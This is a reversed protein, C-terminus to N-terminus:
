ITYQISYESLSKTNNMTGYDITISVTNQADNAIVSSKFNNADLKTKYEGSSFTILDKIHSKAWNAFDTASMKALDDKSILNKSSLYNALMTNSIFSMNDETKDLNGKVFGTYNVILDLDSSAGNMLSKPINVLFSVYGLNNDYYMSTKILDKNTASTWDSPVNTGLTDVLLNRVLDNLSSYAKGNITLDSKKATTGDGLTDFIQVPQIQKLYLLAVDDDGKFTVSYRTNYESTTLFGSFTKTAVYNTFGHGSSGISNAYSKDLNVNVTLNGKIDDPVLTINFNNSDFGSYTILDSLVEGSTVSSALMTNFKAGGLADVTKFSFSYKKLQNLNTYTITYTHSAKDPSNSASISASITLSGNTDDGSANFTMKSIPYGKSVDTNIFQLYQSNNAPGSKLNAVISSPLSGSQIYSKLAGVNSINVSESTTNTKGGTFNFASQDSTKYINYTHNSTYTLPKTSSTYSVGMPIYSYTAQIEITGKANDTKAIKYETKPYLQAGTDSNTIVQSQFTAVFPNLNNVDAQTVTSPLSNLFDYNSTTNLTIWSTKKDITNAKNNGNTGDYKRTIEKPTANTPLTKTYWPIKYLNVTLTFTGKTDDINSITFPVYNTGDQFFSNNLPKIDNRTIESPIKSKLVSDDITFDASSIISKATNLLGLYDGKTSDNANQVVAIALGYQKANNDTQAATATVYANYSENILMLSGSYGYVNFIIFNQAYTAVTNTPTTDSVPNTVAALDLYTIPTIPNSSNANKMTDSTVEYVKDGDKFKFFLNENSDLSWSLIWKSESMAFTSLSIDNTNIIIVTNYVVTVVNGSLMTYYDRQPTISSNRFNQMGSAVKVAGASYKPYSNGIFNLNDDVLIFYIDYSANKSGNDGTTGTEKSFSVIEVFNKNNAVPILNFFYWTYNKKDGDSTPVKTNSNGTIQKVSNNSAQYLYAKAGDKFNQSATGYVMVNGSVLASVFRLGGTNGLHITQLVKGNVADIKFLLQDVNKVGFYGLVWLTNTTRNYDWNFWARKWAGNDYNKGPLANDKDHNITAMDLSWLKSGFWDLATITNGWFTLPGQTTSLNANQDNKESPVLVNTSDDQNTVKSKTINAFNQTNNITSFTIAASAAAILSFSFISLLLKKSRKM